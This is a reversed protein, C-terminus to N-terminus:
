VLMGEQWGSRFLVSLVLVLVVVSVPDRLLTGRFIDSLGDGSGDEELVRDTEISWRRRLNLM